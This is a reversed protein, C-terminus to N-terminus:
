GLIIDEMFQMRATRKGTDLTVLVADIGWDVEDDEHKEMLYVEATRVIRELKKPHLNDEPAYEGTGRSVNNERGRSTDDTKGNNERSVTKVEVFRLGSPGEVIIDIEGYKKRYNRCVITYGKSELYRCALDEGLQGVKASRM